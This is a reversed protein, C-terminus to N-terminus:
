VDKEKLSQEVEEYFKNNNLKRAKIEELYRFLVEDAIYYPDNVINAILQGLRLEPFSKWVDLLKNLLVEQEAERKSLM